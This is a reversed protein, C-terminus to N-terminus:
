ETKSTCNATCCWLATRESSKQAKQQRHTPCQRRCPSETLSCEASYRKGVNQELWEQSKHNRPAHLEALVTSLPCNGDSHSARACKLTHWKGHTARYRTLKIKTRRKSSAHANMYGFRNAEFITLTSFLITRFHHPNFSRNQHANLFRVSIYGSFCNSFLYFIANCEFLPCEFITDSIVRERGADNACVHM